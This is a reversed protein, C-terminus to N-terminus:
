DIAKVGKDISDLSYIIKQFEVEEVKDLFINLDSSNMILLKTKEKLDILNDRFIEKTQTLRYWSLDQLKIDNMILYKIGSIAIVVKRAARGKIGTSSIINVLLRLKEM